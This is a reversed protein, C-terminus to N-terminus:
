IIKILYRAYFIATITIDWRWVGSMKDQESECVKMEGGFLLTLMAVLLWVRKM